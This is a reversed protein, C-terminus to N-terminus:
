KARAAVLGEDTVLFLGNAELTPPAIIINTNEIQFQGLAKGTSSLLFLKDSSQPTILLQNSSVIPDFSLRGNLRVKWVTDGNKANFGYVFNDFSTVVLLKGFVQPASEVAAGTRITWILKGTDRDLCYVHGLSDGLFVEDGEISVSARLPGQAQFQWIEKGDNRSLSYILGAETGIFIEEDTVLPKAKAVSGLSISWNINGSKSDLSYFNNDLSAGYITQDILTLPNSFAQTFKKTWSTLGSRKNIVRLVGESGTETELRSSIYIQEDNAILPSVIKGGPQTEWRLQGTQAELAIVRGDDLPLYVTDSSALAPLKTTNRSAFQWEFVFASPLGDLKAMANKKVKERKQRERREKEQKKRQAFVDINFLFLCILSLSILKSYKSLVLNKM